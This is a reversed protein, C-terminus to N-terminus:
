GLPSGGRGACSQSKNGDVTVHADRQLKRGLQVADVLDLRWRRM